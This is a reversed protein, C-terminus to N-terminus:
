DAVVDLGDLLDVLKRAVAKTSSPNQGTVRRGDVLAYSTLPLWGKSYEAGRKKLESELLFPVQNRRLAVLEELNSYGTLRKGAILHSGDTLKVDLLAAAGHCVSSVVGGREYIRRCIEQLPKSDPFDWMTGHGGAFYVAAYDAPRVQDPALTTKLRAMFAEDQLYDRVTGDAFIRNLSLPDLPVQGGAPSVFDMEYGAKQLLDYFHVLEGLWLGTTDDSEPYQEHNTLVILVKKPM